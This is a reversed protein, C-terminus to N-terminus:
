KRQMRMLADLSDQLRGIELTLSDAERRLDELNPQGNIGTPVLEDRLAPVQNIKDMPVQEPPSPPM